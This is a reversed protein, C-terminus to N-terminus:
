LSEALVAPVNEAAYLAYRNNIYRKEMATRSINAARITAYWGAVRMKGTVPSVHLLAFNKEKETKM